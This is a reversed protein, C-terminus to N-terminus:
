ICLNPKYKAKLSVITNEFSFNHSIKCQSTGVIITMATYCCSNGYKTKNSPMTTDSITGSTESRIRANMNQRLTIGLNKTKMTTKMTKMTKM